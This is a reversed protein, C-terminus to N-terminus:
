WEQGEENGVQALWHSMELQERGVPEDDFVTDYAEKLRRHKKKRVKESLMKAILRSRPIGQEGSMEDIETMLTQPLDIVIRQNKM